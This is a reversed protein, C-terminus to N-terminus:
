VLNRTFRPSWVPLKCLAIPWVPKDVHTLCGDRPHMATCVLKVVKYVRQTREKHFECAQKWPTIVYYLARTCLQRYKHLTSPSYCEYNYFSPLNIVDIQKMWKIRSHTQKIYFPPTESTLRSSQVFKETIPRFNTKENM